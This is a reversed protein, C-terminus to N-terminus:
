PDLSLPAAVQELSKREAAVAFLAAVFAAALMLAAAFLYGAFM